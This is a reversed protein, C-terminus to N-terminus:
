SRIRRAKLLVVEIANRSRELQSTAMDALDNTVQAWSIPM